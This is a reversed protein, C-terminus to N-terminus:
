TTRAAKRMPQPDIEPDTGTAEAYRHASKAQIEATHADLLKLFSQLVASLSGKRWLAVLEVKPTDAPLNAFQIGEFSFVKAWAPMISIGVHSQVLTFISEFLYARDSLRPSFGASNCMGVISDYLVPSEVRDFLVLNEGKLDAVELKGHKLARSSPLVAVLPVTFLLCSAYESQEGEGLGRTFALDLEGKAFAELQRTPTLERLELSVNPNQQRFIEILAPLFHQTAAPIFAITLSGVEGRAVRRAAVSAQEVQDLIKLAEAYFFAGAPTVQVKNGVRTLLEVSLESELDSVTQSLAPAAVHLRRSAERFGKWSVVSTFYRLHRLEVTSDGAGIRLVVCM